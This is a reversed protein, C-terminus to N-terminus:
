SRPTVTIYSVDGNVYSINARRIYRVTLSFCFLLQTRTLVSSRGILDLQQEIFHYKLIVCLKGRFIFRALSAVGALLALFIFSTCGLGSSSCWVSSM